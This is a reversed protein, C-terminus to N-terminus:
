MSPVHPLQTTRVLVLELTLGHMFGVAEFLDGTLADLM